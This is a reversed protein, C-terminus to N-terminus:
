IIEMGNSILIDKAFRKLCPLQLKTKKIEVKGFRRVRSVCIFQRETNITSNVIEILQSKDVYEGNVVARFGDNGKKLFRGM